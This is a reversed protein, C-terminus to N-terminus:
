NKSGWPNKPYMVRRVHYQHLGNRMIKICLKSRSVHLGGGVCVCVCLWLNDIKRLRCKCLLSAFQLINVDPGLVKITGTEEKGYSKM